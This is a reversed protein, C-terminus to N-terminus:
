SRANLLHDAPRRPSRKGSAGYTATGGADAFLGTLLARNLRASEGLMAVTRLHQRRTEEALAQLRRRCGEVAQGEPAPLERALRKLTLGEGRCRLAAALRDATARRRVEAQALQEHAEDAEKFLGELAQEDRSAMAASMRKLHGVAAEQLHTEEDLVALYEGVLTKVEPTTM